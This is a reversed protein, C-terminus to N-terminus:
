TSPRGLRAADDLRSTRELLSRKGLENAKRHCDPILELTREADASGGCEHLM